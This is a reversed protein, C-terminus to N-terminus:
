FPNNEMLRSVETLLHEMVLALSSSYRGQCSFPPLPIKSEELNEWLKYNRYEWNELPKVQFEPTVWMIESINTPLVMLFDDPGLRSGISPNDVDSLTLPKTPSGQLWWLVTMGGSSQELTASGVQYLTIDLIFKGLQFKYGRGQVRELKQSNKSFQAPGFSSVTNGLHGYCYRSFPSLRWPGAPWLHM